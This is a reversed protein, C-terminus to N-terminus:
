VEKACDDISEVIANLCAGVYECMWEYQNEAKQCEPLLALGMALIKAINLSEGNFTIGPNATAIALLRPDDQEEEVNFTEPALPADLLGYYCACFEAATWVGAGVVFPKSSDIKKRLTTDKINSNDIRVALKFNVQGLADFYERPLEGARGELICGMVGYPIFEFGAYEGWASGTFINWDNEKFWRAIMKGFEVRATKQNEYFKGLDIAM